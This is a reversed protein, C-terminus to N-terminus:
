KGEVMSSEPNPCIRMNKNGRWWIGEKIKSIYESKTNTEVM